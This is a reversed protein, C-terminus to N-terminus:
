EQSQRSEMAIRIVDMLWADMVKVIGVQMGKAAATNFMLAVPEKLFAEYRALTPLDLDRYVYLINVLVMQQMMDYLDAEVAEMQEKFPALDVEKEPEAASLLARYVATGVESQIAYNMATLQLLSDLRQAWAVREEMALLEASLTMMENMAAASSGAVEAAVIRQGHDSEYWQLLGSIDESNLRKLVAYRIEDLIVAPDIHEDVSGGIQDLVERPLASGQMAGQEFGARLVNPLEQVQRTLGSLDLLREFQEDTAAQVRLALFLCALVVLAGHM